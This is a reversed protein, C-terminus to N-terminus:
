VPAHTNANTCEIKGRPVARSPCLGEGVNRCFANCRLVCVKEDRGDRSRRAVEGQDGLPPKPAACHVVMGRGPFNWSPTAVGEQDTLPNDLPSRFEGQGGKKVGGAASEKAARFFPPSLGRRQPASRLFAFAPPM